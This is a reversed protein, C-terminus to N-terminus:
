NNITVDENTLAPLNGPNALVSVVGRHWTENKFPILTTLHSAEMNPSVKPVSIVENDMLIAIYKNANLDMFSKYQKTYKSGIPFKIGSNLGLFEPNGFMQPGIASRDVRIAFLLFKKPPGIKYSWTFLHNTSLSGSKQAGRIAQAVRATDTPEVEVWIATPVEAPLSEYGVDLQDLIEKIRLFDEPIDKPGDAAILGFEKKAETPGTMEQPNMDVRNMAVKFAGNEHSVTAACSCFTAYRSQLLTTTSQIQEASLNDPSKLTLITEPKENGLMCSTFV